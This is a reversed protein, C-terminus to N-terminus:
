PVGSMDHVIILCRHIDAKLRAAHDHSRSMGACSRHKNTRRTDDFEPTDDENEQGKPKYHYLTEGTHIPRSYMILIFSNKAAQKM